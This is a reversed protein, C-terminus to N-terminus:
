MTFTIREGNISLNITRPECTAYLCAMRSIFVLVSDCRHHFQTPACNFSPHGAHHCPNCTLPGESLWPQTRIESLERPIGIRYRDLRAM